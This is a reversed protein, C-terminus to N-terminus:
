SKKISRETKGIRYYRTELCKTIKKFINVLSLMNCNSHALDFSGQGNGYQKVDPRFVFYIITMIVKNEVYQLSRYAVTIKLMYHWKVSILLSNM